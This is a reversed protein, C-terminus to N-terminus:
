VDSLLTFYELFMKHIPKLSCWTFIGLSMVTGNSYWDSFFPFNVLFYVFLVTLHVWMWACKLWLTWNTQCTHASQVVSSCLVRGQGQFLQFLHAKSHYLQERMLVLVPFCCIHRIILSILGRLLWHWPYDTVRPIDSVVTYYAVFDTYDYDRNNEVTSPNRKHAKHLFSHMMIVYNHEAM